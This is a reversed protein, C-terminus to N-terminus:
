DPYHGMVGYGVVAARAVDRLVEAGDREHPRRVAKRVKGDVLMDGEGRVEGESVKLRAGADRFEGQVSAYVIWRTGSLIAMARPETENLPFLLCRTQMLLAASVNRPKPNTHQYGNKTKYTKATHTKATHACSRAAKTTLGGGLVNGHRM